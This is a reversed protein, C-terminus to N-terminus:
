IIQNALETLLVYEIALEVFPTATNYIKNHYRVLYVGVINKQLIM